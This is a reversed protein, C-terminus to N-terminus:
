CFLAFNLFRLLGNQGYSMFKKPLLKQIEKNKPLKMVVENNITGKNKL